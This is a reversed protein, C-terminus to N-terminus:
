KVIQEYNKNIEENDGNMQLITKQLDDKEKENDNITNKMKKYQQKLESIEIKSEEIENEKELLVKDIEQIFKEHEAEQTIQVERYSNELKKMEEEYHNRMQEFKSENSKNSSAELKFACKDNNNNNNRSSVDTNGSTSAIREINTM